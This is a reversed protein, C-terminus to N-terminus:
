APHTQRTSEPLFPADFAETFTYVESFDERRENETKSFVNYEILNFVLDGFHSCRTVGWAKLVTRAMLGFQDLAFARMGMLLEVGTVHLSKGARRTDSKKLEKVTFDLGQRVFAYADRHFRNDEKCILSVVENFDLDQM